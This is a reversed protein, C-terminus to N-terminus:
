DRDYQFVFLVPALIFHAFLLIKSDPMTHNMSRRIVSELVSWILCGGSFFGFSLLGRGEGSWGGLFFFPFLFFFIRCLKPEVSKFIAGHSQSNVTKGKLRKRKQMLLYHLILCTMIRAADFKPIGFSLLPYTCISRSSQVFYMLKITMEILTQLSFFISPPFIFEGEFSEFFHVDRFTEVRSRNCSANTNLLSFCYYNCLLELFYTQDPLTKPSPSNLGIVWPLLLMNMLSVLVTYLHKPDM